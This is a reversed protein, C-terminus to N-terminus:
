KDKGLLAEIVTLHRLSHVGSPSSSKGLINIAVSVIELWNRIERSQVTSFACLSVLSSVENWDEGCASSFDMSQGEPVAGLQQTSWYLRCLHISLSCLFLFLSLSLSISASSSSAAHLASTSFLTFFFYVALFCFPHLQCTGRQVLVTTCAYEVHQCLCVLSGSAEKRPSDTFGYM